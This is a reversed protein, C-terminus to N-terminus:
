DNVTDTDILTGPFLIDSPYQALAPYLPILKTLTYVGDYSYEEYGDDIDGGDKWEQLTLLLEDDESAEVVNPQNVGKFFEEWGGLAAGDVVTYEYRFANVGQPYIKVSSVFYDEDINWPSDKTITMTEGPDYDKSTLSFSITDAQNAYKELLQKAYNLADPVTKLKSNSTYAEYSGKDNIENSDIALVLIPRLGYYSVRIADSDAVDLADGSNYSDDQVIQTSGYTWYFDANEELGNVGVDVPTWDGGSLKVEIEPTRGIKYKTFFSKSEGDPEPTPTENEIENQIEAYGGRVYQKNRYNDISRSRTFGEEDELATSNEYYNLAYYNLQKDKNVNWVYNGFDVLEQIVSDADDYNFKIREILPGDQITGATIGLDALDEEIIHTIIEGVYLDDYVRTILKRTLLHTFDGASVTRWLNYQSKDEYVEDLTLIVGGWIYTSDEYLRIEDGCEIEIDTTRLVEDISSLLVKDDSTLLTEDSFEIICNFNSRRNMNEEIDWDESIYVEDGTLNTGNIYVHRIGM